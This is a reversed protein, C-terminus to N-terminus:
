RIAAKVAKGDRVIIYIGPTIKSHDVQLGGLNYVKDDSGINEVTIDTIGTSSTAVEIASGQACGHNYVAVVSYKHVNGATARGTPINHTYSTETIVNDTVQTGNWFVHYGTLTLDEPIDPMGEYTVDDVMLAVSDYSIHHIAFYKAGEPLAVKFETWEEPVAGDAPYNEVKLVETFCEVTNGTSSYYVEFSEPWAISFSKAWFTATQANGSLEPSILWNDNAARLASPAMMFTNGSHPEADLWYEDTVKAIVRNFLQFAMPQTQYNNYLERFINYTKVKDGDYVTWGHPM